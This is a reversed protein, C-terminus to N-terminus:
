PKQETLNIIDTAISHDALPMAMKALAEGLKAARTKNVSLDLLLAPLDDHIRNDAVMLAAGKKVLAEANHRQHDEAATPLPILIIPKGVVMLEAIAIAGARSVIIDAAAYALDMRNIFPHISVVADPWVKAASKAENEFAAGTQWILQLNNAALTDMMKKIARNISRAGQSGGVVLITTTQPDIGFAAAGEARKGAIAVAERRIPNGTLMIKTEPFFKELGDYAVYIRSAKSALLKNTIGPFSNQEQIATPIGLWSAARLTPGSAYGGTGVVMNPKFKRILRLAKMMSFLLKFPFSLNSLTFERKLGSIWLGEIPYGAQPVKEMEMRGKAGVFMFQADPRLKKIANAIAIAPFIHGGTGGGSLMIRLKQDRKM